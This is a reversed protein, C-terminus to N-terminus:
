FIVPEVAASDPGRLLQHLELKLSEDMCSIGVPFGKMHIGVIGGSPIVKAHHLAFYTVPLGSETIVLAGRNEAIWEAVCVKDRKLFVDSVFILNVAEKRPHREATAPVTDIRAHAQRLAGEVAGARDGYRSLCAYYLLLCGIGILPRESKDSM